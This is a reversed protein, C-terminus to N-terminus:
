RSKPAIAASTAPIAAVDRLAAMSISARAASRVVLATRDNAPTSYGLPQGTEAVAPPKGRYRATSRGRQRRPFQVDGPQRRTAVGRCLDAALQEDAGTRDFRM